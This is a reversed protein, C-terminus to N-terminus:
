ATGSATVPSGIYGIFRALVYLLMSTALVAQIVFLIYLADGATTGVSSAMTRTATASIVLPFTMSAFSPMFGLRLFSPLRWVVTAFCILAAVYLVARASLPLLDTYMGAAVTCIAFPAAVICFLPRESEKEVQHRVYRCVVAAMLPVALILASCTCAAGLSGYGLVPASIGSAAIGVYPIFVSAHLDSPWMRPLFRATVLLMLSVQLSLGVALVATALWHITELYQSLIQLSMPITGLVCASVPMSLDRGFSGRVSICRSVYVALLVASAVAPLIPIWEFWTSLVGAVGAMGLAVGCIPVPVRSLWGGMVPAIADTNFIPNM